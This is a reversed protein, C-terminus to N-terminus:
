RVCFKSVALLPEKEYRIHEISEYRRWIEVEILTKGALGDCGYHLYGHLTEAQAQMNYLMPNCLLRLIVGFSLSPCGLFDIVNKGIDEM